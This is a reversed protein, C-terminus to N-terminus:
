IGRPTEANKAQFEDYIKRTEPDMAAITAARAAAAAAEQAERAAEQALQREAKAKRYAENQREIEAAREAKKREYELHEAHEDARRKALVAERDKVIHQRWAVESVSSPTNTEVDEFVAVLIKVWLKAHEIPVTFGFPSQGSDGDGPHCFWTHCCRTDHGPWRWSPVIGTYEDADPSTIRLYTLAMLKTEAGLQAYYTEDDLNDLNDADHDVDVTMHDPEEEYFRTEIKM